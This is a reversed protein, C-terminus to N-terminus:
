FGHGSVLQVPGSVVTTNKSSGNKTLSLIYLIRRLRQKSETECVRHKPSLRQLGLCFTTSGAHTMLCCKETYQLALSLWWSLLICGVVKHMKIDHETDNEIWHRGFRSMRKPWGPSRYPWQRYGPGEVSGQLRPMENVLWQFGTDKKEMMFGISISQFMSFCRTSCFHTAIWQQWPM